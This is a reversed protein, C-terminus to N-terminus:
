ETKSKLILKEWWKWPLLGRLLIAAKVGKGISFRLKNIEQRQVLDKVLAVVEIPDGFDKENKAIKKEIKKIYAYYPSEENIRKTIIEQGKQWIKTKYSGPEVIAVDIGFPKLELRLAESLGEVAFKSSVYPSLGPYGIRGSISSINIIKGKRKERMFPIVVQTVAILGFLNTEFQKRYDDVAVEELFGGDAYGANNILVDVQGIDNLFSKLESISDTKTVNLSHVKLTNELKNERIAKQLENERSPNRVTAIVHYNSKALEIAFLLGFGSSAGTILVVEKNM